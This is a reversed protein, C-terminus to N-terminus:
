LDKFYEKWRGLFDEENSLLVGNQNPEETIYSSMLEKTFTHRPSQLIESGPKITITVCAM